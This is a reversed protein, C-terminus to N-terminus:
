RAGRPCYASALDYGEYALFVREEKSLIGSAFSTERKKSSSPAQPPFFNRELINDEGGREEDRRCNKLSSKLAAVNEVSRNDGIAERAPPSSLLLPPSPSSPDDYPHVSPLRMLSLGYIMTKRSTKIRGKNTATIPPTSKGNKQRAVRHAGCGPGCRRPAM